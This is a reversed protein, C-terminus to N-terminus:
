RRNNWWQAARKAAQILGHGNLILEEILLALCLTTGAVLGGYRLKDPWAPFLPEVVMFMIFAVVIAGQWYFFRFRKM